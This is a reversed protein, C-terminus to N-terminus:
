GSRQDRRALCLYAGWVLLGVVGAQLVIELVSSMVACAAGADVLQVVWAQLVTLNQLRPAIPDYSRTIAIRGGNLPHHTGSIGCDEAFCSSSSRPLNPV